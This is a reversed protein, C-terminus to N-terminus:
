ARARLGSRDAPGRARSHGATAPRRCLFPSKPSHPSAGAPPSRRSRRTGGSHPPSCV